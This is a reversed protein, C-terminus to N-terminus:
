FRARLRIQGRMGLDDGTCPNAASCGGGFAAIGTESTRSTRAIDKVGDGPILLNGHVRIDFHRNVVWQWVLMVEHYLMEDIRTKLADELIASDLMARYLYALTINHGKVPEVKLGAPILLTGPNGYTHNLGIHEFNALRDNFPNGVTHGFEQGGFLAGRAGGVAPGRADSRAPTVVDRTGVSNATDLHDFLATGTMSTIERQPSPAFGNLDRDNRNDDASGIVVGVFPTVMGLEAELYAIGAWAWVDYDFQANAGPLGTRGSEVSGLLFMPQVLAAVPGLKGSWSPMILVSDTKQGTTSALVGGVCGAVACSPAGTFRERFYVTDLAIVHGKVGKYAAHFVYYWFDNDNQLGKRASTSQLVAWAGLDIGGPLDLFLAIRPDDDAVMGAQDSQWLDWGARLRVPTGAFKYDLWMRELNLVDAENVAPRGFIDTGGPGVDAGSQKDSLNGDVLAEWRFQVQFQLSKQYRFDAGFNAEAWWGDTEQNASPTAYPDRSQARDRTRNEFDLNKSTNYRSEGAAIINMFVENGVEVWDGMRVVPVPVQQAM